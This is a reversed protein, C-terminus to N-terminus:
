AADANFAQELDAYFAARTAWVDTGTPTQGPRAGEPSLDEPRVARKISDLDSLDAVRVGSRKALGALAAPSAFVGVGSAVEGRGRRINM